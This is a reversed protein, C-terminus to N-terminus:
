QTQRGLQVVHVEIRSAGDPRVSTIEWLTQDVCREIRYGRVIAFPLTCANFSFRPKRTTALPATIDLDRSHSVRKADATSFATEAIWTFVAVVQAASDYHPETPFDPRSIVPILTVAEGMVDDIAAACEQMAARFTDAFQM